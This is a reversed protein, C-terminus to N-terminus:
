MKAVSNKKGGGKAIFFAKEKHDRLSNKLLTLTYSAMKYVNSVRM